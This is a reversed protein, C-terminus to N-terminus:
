ANEGCRLGLYVPPARTLAFRGRCAGHPEGVARRVQSAKASLVCSKSQLRDPLLLGTKHPPAVIPLDHEKFRKFIHYENTSGGLHLRGHATGGRYCNGGLRYRPIRNSGRNFDARLRNAVPISEQKRSRDHRKKRTRSCDDDGRVSATENFAVTPKDISRLSKKIESHTALYIQALNVQPPERSPPLIFDM